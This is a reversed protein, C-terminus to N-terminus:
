TWTTSAAFGAARAPLHRVPRPANQRHQSKAERCSRRGPRLARRRRWVPLADMILVERGQWQGHHLVRPVTLAQLSATALTDLAAREALILDRTLPNVSIKAFGATQGRPTLLQLVPKRNARAAGLHTSVLM